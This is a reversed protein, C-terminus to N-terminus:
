SHIPQPKHSSLKKVRVPSFNWNSRRQNRRHESVKKAVAYCVCCVFLIAAAVFMSEERPLWLTSMQQVDNNVRIALANAPTYISQSVVVNSNESAPATTNFNGGASTSPTSFETNVIEQARVKATLVLSFGLAALALVVQWKFNKAFNM